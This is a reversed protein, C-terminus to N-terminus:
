LNLENLYKRLETPDSGAYFGLLTSADKWPGQQMIYNLPVKQIAMHTAFTHRTIHWSLTHGHIMDDRVKKSKPDLGSYCIGARKGAAKLRASYFQEGRPFLKDEPNGKGASRLFKLYKKLVFVVDISLVKKVRSGTKTEFANWWERGENELHLEGVTARRYSGIRGGTNIAMIFLTRTSIEDIETKLKDIEDKRLWWEMKQGPARKTGATGFEEIWALEGCAKIISRLMVLKNSTIVPEREQQKAREYDFFAPNSALKHFDELNWSIPDKYKLFKWCEKAFSLRKKLTSQKVKKYKKHWDIIKQKGKTKDWKTEYEPRIKRTKKKPKKPYCYLFDRLTVRSIKKGHIEAIKKAAKSLGSWRGSLKNQKCTDWIIEADASSISRFKRKKCDIEKM